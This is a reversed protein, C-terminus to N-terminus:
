ARARPHYDEARPLRGTALFADIEALDRVLEHMLRLASIPLVFGDQPSSQPECPPTRPVRREVPHPRQSHIYRVLAYVRECLEGRAYHDLEVEEDTPEAARCAEDHEEALRELKALRQLAPSPADKGLAERVREIRERGGRTELLIDNVLAPDRGLHEAWFDVSQKSLEDWLRSGEQRARIPRSLAHLVARVEARVEDLEELLEKPGVDRFFSEDQVHVPPPAFPQGRRAAEWVQLDPELEDLLACELLLMGHDNYFVPFRHAHTWRPARWLYSPLTPAGPLSIMQTM